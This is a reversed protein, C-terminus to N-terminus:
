SHGKEKSQNNINNVFIFPMQQYICKIYFKLCNAHAKPLERPNFKYTGKNTFYDNSSCIYYPINSKKNNLYNSIFKSKGAGPLGRMIYVTKHYDHGIVLRYLISFLQHLFVCFTLCYLSLIISYM